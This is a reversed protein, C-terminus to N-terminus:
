PPCNATGASAHAPSPLSKRKNQHHFHSISPAWCAAQLWGDNVGDCAADSMPQLEVNKVLSSRKFLNRFM